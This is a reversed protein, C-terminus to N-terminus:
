NLLVEQAYNVSIIGKSALVDFQELVSKALGAQTRLEKKRKVMADIRDFLLQRYGGQINLEVLRLINRASAEETQSMAQGVETYTFYMVGAATAVIVLTIFFIIKARLSSFM